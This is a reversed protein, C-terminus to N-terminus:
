ATEAAMAKPVLEEAIRLYEQAMRSWSYQEAVARAAQGMQTRRKPDDIMQNLTSVLAAVDNPDSLVVGCEPSVVEAGGATQATIVPLGSALAELLVLSCAEYRSPFVFFDAARMLAAIDRRYGLFHVRSTLKLQASLEPYPSKETAGAIILHLEPVQVLARLITDLNKRPTRIDGVFLALPVDDPLGLDPLSVPGPRFELLDVGNLVVQIKNSPSDTGIIEQRVRESVAVIVKTASFARREWRANLVTHIWQYLGYPSRSLRSTHVTSRLWASHVFHVANIDTEGGTIAGNTQILDLDSRHARIWRGSHWAFVQNQLLATPWHSVPVPVWSAGPHTYLEEAVESAILVVSHGQNLAECAIEYNVRGQGDGKCFKHTVIAIKM